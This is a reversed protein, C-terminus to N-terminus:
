CIFLHVVEFTAPIFATLLPQTLDGWLSLGRSQFHPSKEVNTVCSLIIIFVDHNM